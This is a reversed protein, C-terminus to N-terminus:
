RAWGPLEGAVAHFVLTGPELAVKRHSKENINRGTLRSGLHFGTPNWPNWRRRGASVVDWRMRWRGHNKENTNGGTLRSGQTSCGPELTGGPPQFGRTGLNWPELANLSCAPRPPVYYGRPFLHGPAPIFAGGHFGNVLM